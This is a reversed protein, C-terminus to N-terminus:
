VDLGHDKAVDNVREPLTTRQLTCPSASLACANPPDLSMGQLVKSGACVKLLLVCARSGLLVDMWLPAHGYKDRCLSVLARAYVCVYVYSHMRVYARMCVCVCM